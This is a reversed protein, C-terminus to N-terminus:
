TEMPPFVLYSSVAWGLDGRTGGAPVPGVEGLSERRPLRSWHPLSTHPSGLPVPNSSPSPVGGQREGDGLSERVEGRRQLGRWPTGTGLKSTPPLVVKLEREEREGKSAPTKM